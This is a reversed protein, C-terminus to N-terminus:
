VEFGRIYEFLMQGAWASHSGFYNQYWTKMDVYKTKENLRYYNTLIRIGWRDLPMVNDFGLSYTLVCDAIKTGVGQLKTLETRVNEEDANNIIGDKFDNDLLRVAAAKVNKARFGIRCELLEEISANAITEIQPFLYYSEGDVKIENGFKKTFIRMSTRISKISKTASFLYSILTEDFPQKLIRVGNFKEKAKSVYEDDPFTSLISNYDRDLQLYNKVLDFNDREPYTQWYLYPAEFKLKILSDKTIGTFEDGDYDWVFSQGGLLTIPFNYNQIEIRNLSM